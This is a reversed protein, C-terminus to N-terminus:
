ILVKGWTTENNINEAVPIMQMMAYNKKFPISFPAADRTKFSELIAYDSEPNVIKISIGWDIHDGVQDSEAIYASEAHGGKQQMDNKGQRSMQAASYVVCNRKRAIRKLSLAINGQQHRKEPVDIDPMMLGAYDIVVIDFQINRKTQELALTSDIFAPKCQNPVDIIVFAGMQNGDITKNHKLNDIYQEFRKYDATNLTARKLNNSSISCACAALRREYDEKSIELSFLLVNYGVKCANYALNLLLISKGTGKRGIVYVLETRRFGGEVQDIAEFGSPIYEISDPHDRLYNYRELQEKASEQLSGSKLIINNDISLDTLKTLLETNLTDVEAESLTTNSKETIEQAIHTLEERKYQYKLIQITQKFSAEDPEIEILDDNYLSNYIVMDDDSIYQSYIESYFINSLTTPILVDNNHHYYFKLLKFIRQYKKSFYKSHLENDSLELYKKDTLLYKLIKQENQLKLEALTM